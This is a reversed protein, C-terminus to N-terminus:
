APRQPQAAPSRGETPAGQRQLYQPNEGGKKRASSVIPDTHHGGGRQKRRPSRVEVRSAGAQTEALWVKRALRSGPGAPAHRCRPCGRAGPRHVVDVVLASPTSTRASPMMSGVLRKGCLGLPLPATGPTTSNGRFACSASRRGVCEGAGAYNFRNRAQVVPLGM